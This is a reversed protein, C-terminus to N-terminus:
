GNVRHYDLGFIGQVKTVWNERLLVSGPMSFYRIPMMGHENPRYNLTLSVSFLELNLRAASAM